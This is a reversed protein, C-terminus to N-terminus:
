RFVTASHSLFNLILYILWACSCFPKPIIVNEHSGSVLCNSSFPSSLQNNSEPAVVWTAVEVLSMDFGFVAMLPSRMRTPFMSVKFAVEIPSRSNSCTPRVLFFSKRSFTISTGAKARLRILTPRKTSFPFCNMVVLVSNLM